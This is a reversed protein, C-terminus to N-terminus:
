HRCSKVYSALGNFSQVQKKTIPRKINAVKDVNDRHMEVQGTGVM